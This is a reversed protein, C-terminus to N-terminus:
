HRWKRANLAFQAQKRRKPSGSKAIKRLKSAPIKKGKKTKTHARLSGARSKKIRIGARRRAM